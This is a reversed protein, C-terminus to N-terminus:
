QHGGARGPLVRGLWRAAMMGAVMAAVFVLTPTQGFGLAALAPGPCYGGLGWGIGFLVAGLLLAPDIDRRLPLSFASGCVPRARRLVLRYGAATVALAGLMVFALSPDWEGAIDLFAIVKAPNIMGSVSLGAGFLMGTAAGAVVQKM